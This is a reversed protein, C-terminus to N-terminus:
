ASRLERVFRSTEDVLGRARQVLAKSLDDLVSVMQTADGAVRAASGARERLDAAFSAVEETHREIAHVVDGHTRLAESISDAVGSYSTLCQGTDSALRRTVQASRAVDAARAAVEGTAQGSHVALTKVESAVIAFGRGAEGARAAEITANLALMNTQRSLEEIRAAVTGIGDANENLLLSHQDALRALQEMERNTEAQAELRQEISALAQQLARTQRTLAETREESGQATTLLASVQAHSSLASDVLQRSLQCAQDTDRALREIAGLLRAEFAAAVGTVTERHLKAQEAERATREQAERAAQASQREAEEAKLVSLEAHALAADKLSQVRSRFSHVQDVVAKGLMAMFVALFFYVVAPIATIFSYAGCVATATGLYAVAAKPVASYRLAGVAIVGAMVAVTLVQQEPTAGIGISSLFVFWGGAVLTASRPMERLRRGLDADGCANARQQRRWNVLMYCCILIHFCGTLLAAHFAHSGRIYAIMALTVSVSAVFTVPYSSSSQAIQAELVEPPDDQHSSSLLRSLASVIPLAPRHDSTIAAKM